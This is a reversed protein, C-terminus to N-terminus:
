GNSEMECYVYRWGFSQKPGTAVRYGVFGAPMIPTLFSELRETYMIATRNLRENVEKEIGRESQDLM